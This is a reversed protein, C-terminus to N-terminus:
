TCTRVYKSNFYPTMSMLRTSLDKTLVIDILLSTSVNALLKLAVKHSTMVCITYMIPRKRLKVSWGSAAGILCLPESSNRYSVVLSTM